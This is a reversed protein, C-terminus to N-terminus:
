ENYFLPRLEQQPIYASAQVFVTRLLGKGIPSHNPVTLTEIGSPGTRHMKIHKRGAAVVFGFREFIGVVDSGSLVKLGGQM